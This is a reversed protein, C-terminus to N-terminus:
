IQYSHSEPQQSKLLEEFKGAPVPKSFLYGQAHDCGAETLLKRQAETEVGEAIVKLDLKHAMVIIAESLAMDNPDSVLDRVFSQDIKLYDIDFKKLYSLSSYGTGFDDIAAQIGADRFELLKGTINTDADLLLGETIEIVVSQGPLGLEQLYAFWARHSRGLTSGFQVPSVNVSIQLNDNCLMRWLKLQRASERFIWDGIEVILGTEEALPIFQAPSVLGLEPHQWRVLAEAKNIRGTALDVIPQYYVTFQGAALAGRLENTLRLRAQAAQQMSPTFYSFRNRGGNKAAYMAQDANKLLDEAEFADNPHLTIGISASVYAMEDELRFPKALNQLINEAIREVSGTDELEALIVTFEDGGLRAVTDTERVCGSIRHAAEKLLTDGMSHGLTDNVEKFKDLDIFLLATKLGARHAKKIDQALRDHFMHRNPLGTLTDFNAQNWILEESEKQRTIDRIFGNFEYGDATLIATISLEVPFERGDRHLGLLEVRSNLIAGKGSALFRELGRTHAERYQPPIIAESLTRGLAEERTWGFIKEAQHNWGTIIGKADMQVVADLATEIITRLRAEDERRAELMANFGDAMQNFSDGVWSLEDRTDLKIRMGLNGGAFARASRALSHISGVIAYYISVSLYVVLLFALTAIATSTYLTKKAQTIRAEILAEATPLLSAYMQTYSRDIASTATDLFEGPPTALRGTLIDSAVLGTIQRSSGAIDGYAAILSAHVSPNYRGAKDLNIELLRLTNNLEAIMVRLDAKQLESVRRGTLIGTGYARIQGLHELTHPLKNIATDILYFSALEPDLTLLYEDSVFVKFLQLQEILHSHAAFNEAVTLNLGNNRLLEWDAKILLFDEGSVMSAPLRAEMAKFAAVAAKEQAARRERMTENGGLLAASIGRHLQIAQVTQAIPKLLVIGELQRQSPHIIRELSVFLSYVVVAIAIMSLLWLLTFKKTYGWRNLLTIAPAFIAQM